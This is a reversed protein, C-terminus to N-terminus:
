LEEIQSVFGTEILDTDYGENSAVLFVQCAELPEAWLDPRSYHRKM